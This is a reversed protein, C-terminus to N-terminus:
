ILNFAVFALSLEFIGFGHINLTVNSNNADYALWSNHDVLLIAILILKIINSNISSVNLLTSYDIIALRGFCFGVNKMPSAHIM